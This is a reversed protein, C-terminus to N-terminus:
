QKEPLHIVQGVLIRNPNQIEPNERHVARLLGIDYRGYADVMIWFLNDRKKLTM